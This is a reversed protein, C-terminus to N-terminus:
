RSEELGTVGVFLEDLLNCIYDERCLRQDGRFEQGRTVGLFHDVSEILGEVGVSYRVALSEPPFAEIIETPYTAVM